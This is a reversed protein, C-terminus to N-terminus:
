MSLSKLKNKRRITKRLIEIKEQCYNSLKVGKEYLKISEKPNVDGSELKEVINELEQIVSDFNSKTKNAEFAGELIKWRKLVEYKLSKNLYIPPKKVVPFGKVIEKYIIKEKKNKSQQVENNILNRAYITPPMKLKKANKNVADFLEETVRIYLTKNYKLPKAM